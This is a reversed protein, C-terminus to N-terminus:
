EIKPAKTLHWKGCNPCHYARLPAPPRLKRNRHNMIALAKVEAHVKLDFARKRQCAERCKAASGVLPPLPRSRAALKKRTKSM